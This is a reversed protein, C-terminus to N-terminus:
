VYGIACLSVPKSCPVEKRVLIAISKQIDTKEVNATSNMLIFFLSAEKVWPKISLGCSVIGIETKKLVEVILRPQRLGLKVNQTVEGEDEMEIEDKKADTVMTM